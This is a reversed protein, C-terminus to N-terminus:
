VACPGSSNTILEYIGIQVTVFCDSASILSVLRFIATSSDFLPFQEDLALCFLNIFFLSPPDSSLHVESPTM